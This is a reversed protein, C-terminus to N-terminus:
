KPSMLYLQVYKLINLLLTGRDVKHWMWIMMAEYVQEEGRM